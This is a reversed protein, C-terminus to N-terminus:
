YRPISADIQRSWADIGGEVNFVQRFGLGRFHEAASRSSNGHHCLFALPQDKPLDSLRAASDEDLVQAGAFPALARDHAPRVDIVMIDNREIRAKLGQVDLSQVAPPANPNTISLGSGQVTDVWDIVIGRARQATTVDMLIDIGSASARIEHGEAERLYFQAQFRADISLHLAGGDSSALGARMAEAAAETITIAPPTRDPKPLGLLEHLEGSNAMGTVIDAGGILEGDVYLQPITPWNGYVKIGERIEPDTLVDISLYDDLLGNLIGATGASFGCRPAHRTGKMFLVIRNHQLLSDIRSRLTPDLNM